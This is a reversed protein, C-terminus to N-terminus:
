NEELFVRFLISQLGDQLVRLPVWRVGGGVPTEFNFTSRSVLDSISTLSQQKGRKKMCVSPDERHVCGEAKVKSWRGAKGQQWWVISVKRQTEWMRWVRRGTPGLTQFFVLPLHMFFWLSLHHYLYHGLFGPPKTQKKTQKLKPPFLQM